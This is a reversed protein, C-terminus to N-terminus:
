NYIWTPISLYTSQMYEAQAPSLLQLTFDFFEADDHHQADSRFARFGRSSGSFAAGAEHLINKRRWAEGGEAGDGEPRM